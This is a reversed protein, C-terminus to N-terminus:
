FTFKSYFIYFYSVMYTYTYVLANLVEKGKTAQLIDFGNNELSKKIINKLISDLSIEFCESKIPKPIYYTDISAEPPYQASFVDLSVSITSCTFNIGYTVYKKGVNISKKYIPNNEICKPSQIYSFISENKTFFVLRNKEDDKKILDARIFMPRLLKERIEYDWDTPVLLSFHHYSTEFLSFVKGKLDNIEVLKRLSQDITHLIIDVFEADAGNNKKLYINNLEMFANEIYVISRKEEDLEKM